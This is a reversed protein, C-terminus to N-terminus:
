GFELKSSGMVRESSLGADVFLPITPADVAIITDHASIPSEAPTPLYAWVGDLPPPVPTKKVAWSCRRSSALYDCLTRLSTGALADVVHHACQRHLVPVCDSALQPWLRNSM